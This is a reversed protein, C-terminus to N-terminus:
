FKYNITFKKTKHTLLKFWTGSQIVVFKKNSKIREKVNIVINQKKIIGRDGDIFENDIKQKKFFKSFNNPGTTYCIYRGKWKEYVEIKDKEIIKDEITDIYDILFKEGKNRCFIIQIDITKNKERPKEVAINKSFKLEFNSNIYIDLDTYLGGYKHLILFRIIDVRMIKYKVSYYLKSYQPYDERILKECKEKDWLIVEGIKKNNEYNFKFLENMEGDDLLGFINHILM